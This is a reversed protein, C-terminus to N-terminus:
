KSKFQTSRELFNRQFAVIVYVLKDIEFCQGMTREVERYILNLFLPGTCNLAAWVEINRTFLKTSIKQWFKFDTLFWRAMQTIYLGMLLELSRLIFPCSSHLLDQGEEGPRWGRDVAKNDPPRLAHAPTHCIDLVKTREDM